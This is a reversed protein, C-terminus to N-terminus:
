LAVHNLIIHMVPITLFAIVTDLSIVVALLESDLKYRDAVVLTILQTPMAAEIVGGQSYPESVHLWRMGWFMLFPSIILKILLVPLLVHFRRLSAKLVPYKLALGLSFIMLGSVASSLVTVTQVIFDPVTIKLLNCVIAIFSTWLIPLKVVEMLSKYFSFGKKKGYFSALASGLVINLPTITIEFLIAVKIVETAEKPFLGQLVAIGFYTVNSFTCALILAGKSRPSAHIFSYTIVGVIVAAVVGLFSLVPLQWFEHGIQASYIVKFNLAPLFIYLVLKNINQRLKDVSMEPFLYSVMSGLFVICALAAFVSFIM